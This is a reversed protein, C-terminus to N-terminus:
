LGSNSITTENFEDYPVLIFVCLATRSDPLTVLHFIFARPLCLQESRPLQFCAPLYDDKSRSRDCKGSWYIIEFFFKTWSLYVRSSRGLWSRGLYLGTLCFLAVRFARESEILLTHKRESDHITGFTIPYLLPWLIVRNRFWNLLGASLFRSCFWIRRSGVSLSLFTKGRGLLWIERISARSGTHIHREFIHFM